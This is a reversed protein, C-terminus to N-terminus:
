GSFHCPQFVRRTQTSCVDRITHRKESVNRFPPFYANELNSFRKLQKNKLFRQIKQKSYDYRNGESIATYCLKSPHEFLDFLPLKKKKEIFLFSKGESGM